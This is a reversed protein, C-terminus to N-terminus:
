FRITQRDNNSSCNQGMPSVLRYVFRLRSTGDGADASRLYDYGFTYSAGPRLPPVGRDDKRTEHDYIDVFQLTNSPQARNGVNVVRGSFHYRKNGGDPTVSVLRVSVLAPDAGSCAAAAPPTALALTQAVLVIASFIIRIM